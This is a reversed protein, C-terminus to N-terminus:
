AIQQMERELLQILSQDGREQAVQLRHQLNRQLNNRHVMALEVAATRKAALRDHIASKAESTTGGNLQYAVGRYILDSSFAAVPQSMDVNPDVLYAHGRYTLSYSPKVLPAAGWSIRQNSLHPNYDYSTGRYLLKM